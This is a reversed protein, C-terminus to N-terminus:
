IVDEPLDVLQSVNASKESKEEMLNNELVVLKEMVKEGNETITITNMSSSAYGPTKVEVVYNGPHLKKLKAEGKENSLVTKLVKQSSADRLTVTAYDVPQYQQDTVLVKVCCTNKAFSGVSISVFAFLLIVSKLGFLRGSSKM